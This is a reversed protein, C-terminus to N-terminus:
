CNPLAEPKLDGLIEPRRGRTMMVSLSLIWVIGPIAGIVDLGGGFQTFSGEAFLPVASVVLV